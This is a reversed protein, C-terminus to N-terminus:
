SDGFFLFFPVCVCILYICLVVYSDCSYWFLRSGRNTVTHDELSLQKFDTAGHNAVTQTSPGGCSLLHPGPSSDHLLFSGSPLHPRLDYCRCLRGSLQRAERAFNKHKPNATMARVQTVASVYWRLDQLVKTTLGYPAVWSMSDNCTESGM